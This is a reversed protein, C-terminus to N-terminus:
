RPAVQVRADYRRVDTGLRVEFVLDHTGPGLPLTEGVVADVRVAGAPSTEVPTPLLVLADGDRRLIRGTVGAVDTAPRAILLFRSGPTYTQTAAADGRWARDGSSLELAYDPLHM